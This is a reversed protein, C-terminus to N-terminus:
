TLNQIIYNIINCAVLAIQLPVAAAIKPTSLKSLFRPPNKPWIRHIKWLQFRNNCFHRQRSRPNGPAPVRLLNQAPRGSEPQRRVPGPPRRVRDPDTASETPLHAPRDFAPQDPQRRGANATIGAAM